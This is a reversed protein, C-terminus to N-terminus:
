VEGAEGSPEGVLALISMVTSYLIYVEEFRETSNGIENRHGDELGKAGDSGKLVERGLV